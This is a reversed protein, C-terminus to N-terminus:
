PYTLGGHIWWSDVMVLGAKKWTRCRVTGPVVNLHGEFIEAGPVGHHVQRRAALDRRLVARVAETAAAFSAAPLVLPHGTSPPVPPHSASKFYFFSDSAESSDSDNWIM